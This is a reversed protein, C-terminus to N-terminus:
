KNIKCNSEKNRKRYNEMEKWKPEQFKNIKPM